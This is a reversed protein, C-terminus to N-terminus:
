DRVIVDILDQRAKRAAGLADQKQKDPQPIPQKGDQPPTVVPPPQPPNEMEKIQRDKLTEPLEPFKLSERLYDELEPDPTLLGSNALKQAADAVAAIDDDEFSGFSLKPYGNPLNSFNLDCLQNVLQKQITECVNKAAAEESQMFLKSHDSSVARSGSANSAGLMLFQGLVSLAIQRDHYQITPLIEKTSNGKMDMMEVTSGKPVELYAEENARMQRMLNRAKAKESEDSGQEFTIIPIGVGQKELAIGNVKILSDKMYWDKYAFRLLSIGEFNEGEKLNAWRILKVDPISVSDGVLQQTIGPKGDQTQWEFLSLQKRFGITDICVRTQGDYESVAYTKEHLAFGFDFMTLGGSLFEQWNLNHEFLEWNIFDAIAQDAPDDSAPQVTWLLGLIPLKCMQLIAHVTADSRRMTDYTTNGNRGVLDRNYEEGTIIGNQIITGSHGIEKGLGKTTKTNDM